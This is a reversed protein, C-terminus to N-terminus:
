REIQLFAELRIINAIISFLYSTSVLNYFDINYSENTYFNRINRENTRNLSVIYMIIYGLVVFRQGFRFVDIPMIETNNEELAELIDLNCALIYFSYGYLIFFIGVKELNAINIDLNKIYDEINENNNDKNDKKM